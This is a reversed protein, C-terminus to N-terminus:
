KEHQREFMSSTKQLQVMNVLLFHLGLAFYSTIQPLSYDQQPLLQTNKKVLNMVCISQDRPLSVTQMM